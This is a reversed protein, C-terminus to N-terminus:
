VLLITPLTLHTYSVAGRGTRNFLRANCERELANIRRSLVSQDQDLYLAARSISGLEAIALFARWKHLDATVDLSLGTAKAPPM